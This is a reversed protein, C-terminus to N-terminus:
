RDRHDGAHARRDHHDHGVGGPGRHLRRGPRGAHPGGGRQAHHGPGAHGHGASINTASISVPYPGATDTTAPTGAISGTGNGNDTFTLGTPLTGASLTLTPAPFGTTTIAYTGAVGTTFTATTGSTITPAEANTLTFTQTAPTGVQNNATITIPYSGGTGATSTGAITATGNGNDTFTIGNPLAGTETLTPTPAGTTTVTFTFPAGVISTASAASTFTAGVNEVLTLPTAGVNVWDSLTGGYSTGFASGNVTTGLPVTVPINLATGSNAVTVTGNTISASIGTGNEASAWASQEQLTQAETVDDMQQLPATTTNYWTKYQTLMDSILDLITYGYDNGSSDTAPGILDSQHAYGVRPNNALVHGLMIHSESALVGAETLPASVCTTASTSTCHGTEGGGISDGQTVYLTNYENLEDPWNAANYYINSPYRPAGLAAGLSYQTPQRSGDQAFTTVGVGALAATMNPNELGSHEGTVVAAPTYNPLDNAAGFAQDLGIEQEISDDPTTTPDAAM